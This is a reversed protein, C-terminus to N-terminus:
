VDTAIKRQRHKRRGLSKERKGEARGVLIVDTMCAVHGTETM